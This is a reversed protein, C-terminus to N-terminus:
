LYEVDLYYTTTRTKKPLSSCVLQYKVVLLSVGLLLTRNLTTFHRFIPQIASYNSRIEVCFLDKFKYRWLNFRSFRIRHWSLLNSTLWSSGQILSLIVRKMYNHTLLAPLSFSWLTSWTIDNIDKPSIWYKTEPMTDKKLSNMQLQCTM